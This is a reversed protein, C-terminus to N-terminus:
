RSTSSASPTASRRRRCWTAATTRPRPSSRRRRAWPSRRSRVLAEGKERLERTGPGAAVVEIAVAQAAEELREPGLRLFRALLMRDVIALAEGNEGLGALRCVEEATRRGDVLFLVRWEEETLSVTQKLSEASLLAELMHCERRPPGEGVAAPDIRRVGEMVLSYFDLDLRVSKIPVPVGPFFTFCGRAWSFADFLIASAQM